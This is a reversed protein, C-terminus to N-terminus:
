TTSTNHLFNNKCFTQINNWTQKEVIKKFNHAWMYKHEEMLPYFFLNTKCSEQQKKTQYKQQFIV